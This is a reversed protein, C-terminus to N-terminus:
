TGREGNLGAERDLAHLPGTKQHARKLSVLLAFQGYSPFAM